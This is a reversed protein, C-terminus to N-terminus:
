SWEFQSHTCYPPLTEGGSGNEPGFFRRASCHSMVRGSRDSGDCRWAAEEAVQLCDADQYGVIWITESEEPPQGPLAPGPSGDATRIYPHDSFMNSLHLGGPQIDRSMRSMAEELTPSFGPRWKTTSESRTEAASSQRPTM